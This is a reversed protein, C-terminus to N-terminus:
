DDVPNKCLFLNTKYQFFMEKLINLNRSWAFHRCFGLVSLITCFIKNSTTIFFIIHIINTESRSIDVAEKKEEFHDLFEWVFAEMNGAFKSSFRQVVQM